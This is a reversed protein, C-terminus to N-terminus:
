NSIKYGFHLLLKKRKKKEKKTDNRKFIILILIIIIFFIFSLGLFHNEPVFDQERSRFLDNPLIFSNYYFYFKESSLSFESWQDQHTTFALVYKM